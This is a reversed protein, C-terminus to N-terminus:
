FLSRCDQLSIEFNSNSVFGSNPFRVGLYQFSLWLFFPRHFRCLSPHSFCMKCFDYGRRRLLLYRCFDITSFVAQEECFCNQTEISIVRWITSILLPHIRYILNEFQVKAPVSIKGSPTHPKPIQAGAVCLFEFGIIEFFIKLYFFKFTFKYIISLYNYM